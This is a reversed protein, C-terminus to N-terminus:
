RKADRVLSLRGASLTAPLLTREFHRDAGLVLRGTVGDLRIDREGALLQPLLRAADIGLAYLRELEYGGYLPREYIMVNPHDADIMWPMDVFRVEELEAHAAAADPGPNLHSTGYVALAGLHPRVTRARSAEVALFVMDAVGLGAAQKLRALEAPATTHAYDAIGFGGGREFEQLFADRMRRGLPTEETVSLAKRRGERLALQAAQRAESEVQLSLFYLNSPPAEVTSHPVNLALTPVKVVNSRALADVATRTLPGIVARAGRALADRYAALMQQPDDTVSYLVIPPLPAAQKAAGETIGERVAEAAHAFAASETPLLVAIHAGKPAERVSQIGTPSAHVAEGGYLLVALALLFALHHLARRPM